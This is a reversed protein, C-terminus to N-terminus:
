GHHILHVLQQRQLARIEPSPQRFRLLQYAAPQELELAISTYGGRDGTFNGSSDKSSDVISTKWSGSSKTAYKLYGANDILNYYYYSIHADNNDDIALSSFGGAVANGFDSNIETKSWSSGNYSAYYLADISDTLYSIRPHDNDDIAISSYKGAEKTKDVTERIWQSGNWYAHKLSRNVQDYYSIHPYNHSDLAISSYKGVGSIETLTPSLISNAGEPQPALRQPALDKGLQEFTSLPQPAVEEPANTTTAPTDILSLVWNSGNYYAYKLDGNFCDYYSIHAYNNKDMAIAAYQGVGFGADVTEQHWSGDYWAHYLHDGGYAFHPYGNKDYALSRSTMNYFFQPTDVRDILWGYSLGDPQSPQQPQPSALVPTASACVLALLALLTLVRWQVTMKGWNNPDAHKLNKM